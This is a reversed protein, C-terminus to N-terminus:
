LNEGSSTKISSGLDIFFNYDVSFFCPNELSTSVDCHQNNSGIKCIRLPGDRHVFARGLSGYGAMNSTNSPHSHAYTNIGNNFRNHYSASYTSNHDLTSSVRMTNSSDRSALYWLNNNNNNISHNNYASYYPSALLLNNPKTHHSGGLQHTLRPSNRSVCPINAPTPDNKIM